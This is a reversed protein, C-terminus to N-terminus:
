LFGVKVFYKKCIAFHQQHYINDICDPSEIPYKQIDIEIARNLYQQAETKNWLPQNLGMGPITTTYLHELMELLNHFSFKILLTISIFIIPIKIEINIPNQSIRVRKYHIICILIWDERKGTSDKPCYESTKLPTDRQLPVDIINHHDVVMIKPALEGFEIIEKISFYIKLM